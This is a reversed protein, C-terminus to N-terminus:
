TVMATPQVPPLCRETAMDSFSAARSAASPTSVTTTWRSMPRSHCSTSRPQAPQAPRDGLAACAPRGLRAARAGAAPAGLGLDDGEAAAHAQGGREGGQAPDGALGHDGDGVVAAGAAAQAVFQAHQGGAVQALRQGRQAPVVVPALGPRADDLVAELGLAVQVLVRDAVQQDDGQPLLEAVVDLRQVQHPPQEARVAPHQGHGGHRQLKLRQDLPVVRLAGVVDAGDAALGGDGEGGALHLRHM